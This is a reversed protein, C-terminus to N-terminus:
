EFMWFVLTEYTELFLTKRKIGEEGIELMGMPLKMDRFDFDGEYEDDEENPGVFATSNRKKTLEQKSMIM